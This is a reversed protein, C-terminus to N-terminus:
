LYKTQAPPVVSSANQVSTEEKNTNHLLFHGIYLVKTVQKCGIFFIYLTARVVVAMSTGCHQAPDWLIFGKHEVQSSALLVHPRSVYTYFLFLLHHM